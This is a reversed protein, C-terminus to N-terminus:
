SRPYQLFKPQVSVLAEKLDRKVVTAKDRSTKGDPLSKLVTAARAKITAINADLQTAVGRSATAVLALYNGVAKDVDTQKQASGSLSKQVVSKKQM